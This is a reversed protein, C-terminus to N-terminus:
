LLILSEGDRCISELVADKLRYAQGFVIETGNECLLYSGDHLCLFEHGRSDPYAMDKMVDKGDLITECLEEYHPLIMRDTLGLGPIFREARPQETEGTREVHTYVTSACNMSGASIGIVNGRYDAMKKGLGIRHFFTNQTQPHGGALVVVDYSAIRDALELARNDCLDISGVSLAGDACCTKMVEIWGDNRGSAPDAALILIRSGAKWRKALEAIFGNERYIGIIGGGRERPGICSTLFLTM